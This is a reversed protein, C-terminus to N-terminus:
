IQRFDGSVNTEAELGVAQDVWFSFLDWDTPVQSGIDGLQEHLYQSNQYPRLAGWGVFCVLLLPNVHILKFNM